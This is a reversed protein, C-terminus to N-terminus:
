SGSCGGWYPMGGSTKFQGRIDSTPEILTDGPEITGAKQAELVMQYGIRDKVSGGPNLFECKGYLECPLDSGIHQFRVTPTNGIAELINNLIM